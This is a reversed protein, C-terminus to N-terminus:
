NRGAFTLHVAKRYRGITRTGVGLTYRLKTARRTPFASAAPELGAMRVVVVQDITAM